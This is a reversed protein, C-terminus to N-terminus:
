GPTSVGVFKCGFTTPGASERLGWVPGTTDWVMLAGCCVESGETGVSGYMCGIEAVGRAEFDISLVVLAGSEIGVCGGIVPADSSTDGVECCIVETCGAHSAIEPGGETEWDITGDVRGESGIPVCCTTGCGISM